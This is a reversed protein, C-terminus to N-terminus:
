FQNKWERISKFVDEEDGQTSDFRHAASIVSPQDTRLFPNIRLEEGITSPLTPQDQSRKQRCAEIRQQIAENEPEVAEAFALNALSYEHTCYVRTTAPLSKFYQM